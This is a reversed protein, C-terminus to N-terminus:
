EYTFATLAMVSNVQRQQIVTTHCGQMAVGSKHRVVSDTCHSAISIKIKKKIELKREDFCMREPHTLRCSGGLANRGGGARGTM